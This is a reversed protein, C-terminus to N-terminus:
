FLWLSNIVAGPIYETTEQYEENVTEEPYVGVHVPGVHNTSLPPGPRARAAMGEPAGEFHIFERGENAYSFSLTAKGWLEEAEAITMGVHVGAPTELQEGLVVVGEIPANPNFEPEVQTLTCFQVAGMLTACDAAIDVMFNPDYEWSVEGQAAQAARAEGLTMDTTVALVRNREVSQAVAAGSLAALAGATLVLIRIM